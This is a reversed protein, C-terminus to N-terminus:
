GTGARTFILPSGPFPGSNPNNYTRTISANGAMHNVQGTKAPSFGGKLM